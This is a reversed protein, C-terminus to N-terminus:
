PFLKTQTGVELIANESVESKRGGGGCERSLEEEEGCSRPLEKRGKDGGSKM